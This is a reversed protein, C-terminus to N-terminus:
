SRRRLESGLKRNDANLYEKSIDSLVNLPIPQVFVGNLEEKTRYIHAMDADAPIIVIYIQDLEFWMEWAIEDRREARFAEM